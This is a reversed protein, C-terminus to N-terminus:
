EEISMSENNLQMHLGQGDAGPGYDGYKGASSYLSEDMSFSSARAVGMYDPRMQTQSMDLSEDKRISM